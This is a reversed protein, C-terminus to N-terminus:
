PYKVYQLLAPDADPASSADFDLSRVAGETRRNLQHLMKFKKVDRRRFKNIYKEELVITEYASGDTPEKVLYVGEQLYVTRPQGEGKGVPYIRRPDVGREEVLYKYCARARNESLKQNASVGGRADTHSSLELVLTPNEQLLNYVFELSDTSNITSDVLLDWKNLPYRVEPLRIPKKIPFLGMDVVFDQNDELEITTITAPKKNEYYGEKSINMTYTAEENIYRDGTPKKDWFVAGSEDTYGEWTDGTSSTVTIQADEIMVDKESLDSVRVKLTFLNPPLEYSYIDPINEGNPGKRESTFYGLRDTKEILAYDNHEGNIPSGMNKPGEWKNEEGVRTARFIDLGGLGPLGDSAYILDGNLAFTPFLENGKTNIEPGMNKPVSWTDSKRDYTTYWLDRGGYGGPMDSAFILYKGDQTCPHGVSISDHMKLELKTPEKWATKGKAESMWIDCGLNQKKMNPCRTFFMKKYRSDFCVTGENDITNIGEGDVLKPAKWNGKKDIDSVWLDMYGEGSRPDTGKGTSGVRSSSFYFATQKRNGLMPAMDFEKKNLAIENEIKHKTREAVYTKNNNCSEIGAAARDDEPVLAKYKEYNEIAKDYERMMRLLDANYLLVQPVVQEYELLVCRDYWSQADRYRETLRYCEAAKFAMEGKRKQASKGKRTLKNYATECLKAAISYNESAFAENAKVIAKPQGFSLMSIFLAAFSLVIRFKM